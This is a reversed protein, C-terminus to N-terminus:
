TGPTRRGDAACPSGSLSAAAAPAGGADSSTLSEHSVSSRRMSRETRRCGGRPGRSEPRRRGRALGLQRGLRHGSSCPGRAGPWARCRACPGRPRPRSPDGAGVDLDAVQVAAELLLRLVGGPRLDERVGIPEVVDRRHEVVDAVRHGDLLQEADGLSIGSRACYMRTITPSTERMVSWRVQRPAPAMSSPAKM